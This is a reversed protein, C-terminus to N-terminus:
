FIYKRHAAPNCYNTHAGPSPFPQFASTCLRGAPHAPWACGEGGLAAASGLPPSAGGRLAGGAPPWAAAPFGWRETEKEKWHLSFGTLLDLPFAVTGGLSSSALPTLQLPAWPLFIAASRQALPRRARLRRSWDGGGSAGLRGAGAAPRGPSQGSHRSGWPSLFIAGSPSSAAPSRTARLATATAPGRPGCTLLPQPSWSPARRAQRGGPGPVANRGPEGSACLGRGRPSPARRALEMATRHSRGPLRPMTRGSVEVRSFRAPSSRCGACGRAGPGPRPRATAAAEWVRRFGRQGM